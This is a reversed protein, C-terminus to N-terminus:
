LKGRKVPDDAYLCMGLNFLSKIETVMENRKKLIFCLDRMSTKGEEEDKKKKKFGMKPLSKSSKNSDGIAEINGFLNDIEIKIKEM